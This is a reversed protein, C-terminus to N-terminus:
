YTDESEGQGVLGIIGKIVGLQDATKHNSIARKLAIEMREQQSQM